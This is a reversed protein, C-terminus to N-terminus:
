VARKIFGFFEVSCATKKFLIWVEVDEDRRMM